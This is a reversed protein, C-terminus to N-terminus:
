IALIANIIKSVGEDDNTCTVYDAMSKVYDDSNGMAVGIGAWKLMESDNHSDGFAMVCERNIGNIECYKRLASAKSTGKRVIDVIDLSSFTLDVNLSGDKLCVPLRAHLAQASLDPHNIMIKHAGEDFMSDSTHIEVEYYIKSSRYRHYIPDCKFTYGFEVAVGVLKDEFAAKVQFVANVCDSRPILNQTTESYLSSNLTLSYTLAGNLCIAIQPTWELHSTNSEKLAKVVSRPSRGTALIISIGNATAAILTKLTTPTIRHKSDLLTGDMDIVILKTQFKLSQLLNDM